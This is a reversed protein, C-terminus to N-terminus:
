AYLAYIRRYNRTRRLGGRGLSVEDAERDLLQQDVDRSQHLVVTSPNQIKGLCFGFFRQILPDNGGRVDLDTFGHDM